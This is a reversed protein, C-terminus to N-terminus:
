ERDHTLMVSKVHSESSQVRKIFRVNGLFGTTGGDVLPVDSAICMKNVHRRADANDLANFVVEFQKYWEM